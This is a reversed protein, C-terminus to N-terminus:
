ICLYQYVCAGSQINLLDHFITPHGAALAWSSVSYALRHHGFGMRITCIVIPKKGGNSGSNCSSSSSSALLQELTQVSTTSTDNPVVRRSVRLGPVHQSATTELPIPVTGAVRSGIQIKHALACKVANVPNNRGVFADIDCATTPNRLIRRYAAAAWAKVVRVLLLGGVFVSALVLLVLAWTQMKIVQKSCTVGGHSVAAYVVRFISCIREIVSLYLDPYRM